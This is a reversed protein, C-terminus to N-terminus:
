CWEAQRYRYCMDPPIRCLTGRAATDWVPCPRGARMQLTCTHSLNKWTMQHGGSCWLLYLHSMCLCVCERFYNDKGGRWYRLCEYVQGSVHTLMERSLTQREVEKEIESEREVGKDRERECVCM